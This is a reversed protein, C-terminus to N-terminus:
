KAALKRGANLADYNLIANFVLFYSGKTEARWFPNNSFMVVHGQGFPADVVAAHQALEGGNDLLGSVLLENANAYRLVVRPRMAPPIVNVGNRLQEDTLPQAEWVEARPTEPIEDPVRGNPTDADDATGRGTPREGGGGGGRGGGGGGGGGAMNSVGFIPPNSAFIALNDDFGYAIPSAADIMKSRLASGTVKLNRGASISVGPTMGFTNAFNSTDNAVILVGGKQVFEQLHQLGNWGMGPRMDDTEDTKALNPTQPTVKWPLPNGYMPLGNIIGQANGRAPPFVIVDYKARLDAEKAPIQTSIYTYPIKLRDFEMRWWGEAQTTQWTHMLAIRPVHIPHTKVSPAPAAIVKLGLENVAALDSASVNKVIFSGRNFKHGAAEFPEEAADFTAKPFRYRM